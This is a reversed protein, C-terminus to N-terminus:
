DMDVATVTGDLDAFVTALSGRADEIGLNWSLGLDYSLGLDLRPTDIAVTPFRALIGDILGTIAETRVDTIPFSGEDRFQPEGISLEGGSYYAGIQRGPVTPDPFSMWVSEDDFYLDSIETTGPAAAQLAALAPALLSPDPRPLDPLVGATDRLVLADLQPSQGPTAPATAFTPATLAVAEDYSVSRGCGALACCLVVGV